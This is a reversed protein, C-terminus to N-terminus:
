VNLGLWDVEYIWEGLDAEMRREKRKKEIRKKEV